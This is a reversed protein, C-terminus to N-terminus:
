EALPPLIIWSRWAMLYGISIRTLHDTYKITFVVTSQLKADTIKVRGLYEMKKVGAEQKVIVDMWEVTRIEVQSYTYYFAEGHFRHSSLCHSFTIQHM